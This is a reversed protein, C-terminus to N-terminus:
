RKSKKMQLINDVLTTLLEQEFLMNQAWHLPTLGIGMGRFYYLSFQTAFVYFHYKTFRFLSRFMVHLVILILIWDLLFQFQM